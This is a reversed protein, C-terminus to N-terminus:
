LSVMWLLSNPSGLQAWSSPSCLAVLTSGARFSWQEGTCNPIKRTALVQGQSALVGELRCPM